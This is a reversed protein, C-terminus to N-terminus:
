RVANGGFRERCLSTFLALERSDADLSSKIWKLHRSLVIIAAIQANVINALKGRQIPSM